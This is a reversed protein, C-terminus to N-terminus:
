ERKELASQESFRSRTLSYQALTPQQPLDPGHDTVCISQRQPLYLGQIGQHGGLSGWKHGGWIGGGRGHPSTPRFGNKAAETLGQCSTVTVGESKLSVPNFTKFGCRCVVMAVSSSAPLLWRWISRTVPISRLVM